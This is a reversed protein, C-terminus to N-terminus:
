IGAAAGGLYYTARAWDLSMRCPSLGIVRSEFWTLHCSSDEPEADHSSPHGARVFGSEMIRCLNLQLTSPQEFGNLDLQGKVGPDIEFLRCPCFLIGLR